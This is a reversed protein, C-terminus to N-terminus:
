KLAKSFAHAVSVLNKGWDAALPDVAVVQGGIESAITKAARKSFQPEVFVVKIQKQKAINIVRALQAPTPDTGNVQIPLQHLGYARAFYGFAPHYVLFENAHPNNLAKLIESDIKDIHLAFKRYNQRYDAAHAPDKAILTDRITGAMIRVLVPSMWIHPDGRSPRCPYGKTKVSGGDDDGVGEPWQRRCIRGYVPVVDMNPNVSAIRSQWAKEFPVGMPFYIQTKALDKMQAAKPAYSDPEAGPPVIVSVDVHSGGVQEVFYKEPVVSVAVKLPQAYALAPFALATALLLKALKSVM